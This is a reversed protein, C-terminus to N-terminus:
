RHFSVVFRPIRQDNRVLRYNGESACTKHHQQLRQQQQQQEQHEQHEQDKVPQEEEGKIFPALASRKYILHPHDTSGNHGKIPEILYHQDGITVYGTQWWWLVFDNMMMWM